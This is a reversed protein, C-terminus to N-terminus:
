VTAGVGETPIYEHVTLEFEILRQQAYGRGSQVVRVVQIKVKDGVRKRALITKLQSAKELVTGDVSYLVDGAQLQYEGTLEDNFEYSRIQMSSSMYIGLYPRGSVYGQRKLQKAINFADVSPIAFGIGEISDGSSKANVIGILNGDMNFLGGGSNGPNVSADIQMLTMPMGEVTISRGLASIIGTTVSGGLKGLPNGIAVVQEGVAMYSYANESDGTPVALEAYPLGTVDIKILALDSWSDEGYVEAVYTSGDTLIVHVTESGEIVHHCTLILGDSSIIVGSGAGSEVYEGYYPSNVTTETRIEVVSDKVAAVVAPVTGDTLQAEREIVNVVLEGRDIPPRHANGGTGQGSTNGAPLPIDTMKGIVVGGFVATVLLAFVLVSALFGTRLRRSREERKKEEEYADRFAGGYYSGTHPAYHTDPEYAVSAGREAAASPETASGHSAASAEANEETPNDTHSRSGETDTPEGNSKMENEDFFSM